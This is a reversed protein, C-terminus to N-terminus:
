KKGKKKKKGPAEGVIVTGEQVDEGADKLKEICSVYAMLDRNTEEAESKSRALEEVQAQLLKVRQLLSENMAEKEQADKRMQRALQEAKEARRELRAKEKELGPLTEDLTRSHSSEIELMRCSAHLAAENAAAEAAAAKAAKDAARDIQEEFYLRQSDLQSTILTSYEYSMKEVKEWPLDEMDHNNSRTSSFAAPLEVLKGNSKDQLLRHVYNDGEYDWIHQDNLDMAFAHGTQQYHEQAHAEDYRGCGVSGCILSYM